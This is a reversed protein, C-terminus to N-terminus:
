YEDAIEKLSDRETEEQAMVKDFASEDWYKNFARKYLLKLVDPRYADFADIEVQFAEADGTLGYSLCFEKHRERFERIRSDNKTFRMVPLDFDDIQRETVGVLEVYDFPVNEVLNAYIREGSPDCDGGYILVAPRGDKNIEEILEREYAEAGFGGLAFLRVGFGDFWKVLDGYLGRKEVGVYIQYQQGETRDRRYQKYVETLAHKPNEFGSNKTRTTDIDLLPPFLGARRDKATHDSLGSYARESEEKTSNDLIGESVLRYFLRRLTIREPYSNVIERAREIIPKWKLNPRSRKRRKETM